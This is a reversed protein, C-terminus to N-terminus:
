PGARSGRWCRWRRQAPKRWTQTGPSGPLLCPLAPNKGARCPRSYLNPKKTDVLAKFLRGSGEDSLVKGLVEIAAFQPDSAAPIHYAAVLVQVDGSRRVTVNREGDQAPDLTYSKPLRRSPRPILGLTENIFALTKMEDMKGAVVLVANDPQYYTEYFHRLRPISVNEIDTRAGISSKGYNHWEYATAMTRQVTVRVPDNEGMEFENRVVSMEGKGTEADWLDRQILRANVMRDAEFDLVKKLNEDGAPFHIYYNTRDYSTMGDFRGGLSNLVDLPTKTGDEGSHRVKTPRYLLHELLHAMGTEGYNEHVSGVMYTINVTLSPKGADPFLLVRLGNALLYETIGEVTTVKLPAPLVDSSRIKNQASGPDVPVLPPLVMALPGLKSYIFSM